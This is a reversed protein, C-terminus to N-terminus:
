LTRSPVYTWTSKRPVHARGREDRSGRNGSSGEHQREADQGDRARGGSVASPYGEGGCSTGHEEGQEKERGREREVDSEPVVQVMEEVHQSARLVASRVGLSRRHHASRPIDFPEVLLRALSTGRPLLGNAEVCRAGGRLVGDEVLVEDGLRPRERRGGVIRHHLPQDDCWHSAVMRSRIKAM